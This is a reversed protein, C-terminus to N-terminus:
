HYTPQSPQMPPVRGTLVAHWQATLTDIIDSLTVPVSRVVMFYLTREFGLMTTILTLRAAQRQPGVPFRGLYVTMADAADSLTQYWRQSVIPEVALAHEFTEFQRYQDVWLQTSREVWERIGDLDATDLHDLERYSDVVEPSLQALTAAVLEAKNKFHLYVNARSIGAAKAISEMTIKDYGSESFLPIACEIIRARTVQKRNGRRAPPRPAAGINSASMRSMTDVATGRKAHSNAPSRPRTRRCGAPSRTRADSTNALSDTEDFGIARRSHSWRLRDPGGDLTRSGKRRDTFNTQKVAGVVVLADGTSRVRM